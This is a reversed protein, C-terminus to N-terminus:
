TCTYSGAAYFPFQKIKEGQLFSDTCYKDMDFMQDKPVSETILSSQEIEIKSELDIIIERAKM